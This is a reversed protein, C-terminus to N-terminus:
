QAMVAHTMQDANPRVVGLVMLVVLLVFGMGMRVHILIAKDMLVSAIGRLVAHDMIEM